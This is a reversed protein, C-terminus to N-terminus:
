ERFDGRSLTIVGGLFVDDPLSGGTRGFLLGQTVPQARLNAGAM